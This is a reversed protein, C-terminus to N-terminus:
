NLRRANHRTFTDIKFLHIVYVGAVIRVPPKAGLARVAMYAVAGVGAVSAYLEAYSHFIRM